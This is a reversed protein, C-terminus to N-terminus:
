ASNAILMSANVYIMFSVWGLYPLQLLAALRSHRDFEQIMTVILLWLACLIGLAISIQEYHLFFLAWMLKAGLQLFYLGYAPSAAEFQQAEIRVLVAGIVM